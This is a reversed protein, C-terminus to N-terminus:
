ALAPLELGLPVSEPAEGEALAIRDFQHALRALRQRAIEGLHGFSEQREVLRTEDEVALQDQRHAVDQREGRQLQPQMRGSRADGLQRASVGACSISNSAQLDAVVRQEFPRECFTALRELCNM